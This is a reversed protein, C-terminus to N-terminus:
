EKIILYGKDDLAKEILDLINESDAQVTHYHYGETVNKLPRSKGSHIDELFDQISKRSIINMVASIRGYVKHNVFVDIVRGGLDVVTQLEDEIEDDTHRVKFIRNFVSQKELVYGRNTSIIKNGQNKLTSIDKVIIQRSVGFHEALFAGSLAKDGLKLMDLIERQRQTSKM